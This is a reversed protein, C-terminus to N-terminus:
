ECIKATSSFKFKPYGKKEPIKITDGTLPNRGDRAARTYGSFTGVEGLKYSDENAMVEMIEESLAKLVTEVKNQALGTKEAIAKVM